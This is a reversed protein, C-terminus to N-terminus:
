SLTENLFDVLEVACSTEHGRVCTYWIDCIIPKFEISGQVVQSCEMEIIATAYEGHPRAWAMLREWQHATLSLMMRTYIPRASHVHIKQMM